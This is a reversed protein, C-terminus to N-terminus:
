YESFHGITIKISVYCKKISIYRHKLRLPKSREIILLVPSVGENATREGVAKLLFEARNGRSGGEYWNKDNRYTAPNERSDDNEGLVVKQVAKMTTPQRQSPDNPDSVPRKPSSSIRRKRPSHNTAGSSINVM